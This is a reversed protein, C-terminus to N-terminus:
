YSPACRSSVCRNPRLDHATQERWCGIPIRLWTHPLECWTSHIQRVITMMVAAVLAFLSGGHDRIRLRSILVSASALVIKGAGNGVRVFRPSTPLERRLAVGSRRLCIPRKLDLSCAASGCSKLRALVMPFERHLAWGLQQSAKNADRLVRTGATWLGAFILM